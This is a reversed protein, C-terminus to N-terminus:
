STLLQRLRALERDLSESSMNSARTMMVGDVDLDEEVEPGGSDDLEIGLESLRQQILPRADADADQQALRILRDFLARDGFVDYLQETANIADPGVPLPYQMMQKLIAEQEPTTPSDLVQETLALAWEEFEQAEATTRKAELRAMIPLASEVRQDLSREVFLEKINEVTTEHDQIHAPDFKELEERYGRQSVMRKAKVKLDQYHKVAENALRAANGVLERGRM